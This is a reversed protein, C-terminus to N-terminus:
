ALGSGARPPGREGLCGHLEGAIVIGRERCHRRLAAISRFRTAGDGLSPSREVFDFLGGPHDKALAYQLPDLLVYETSLPSSLAAVYM